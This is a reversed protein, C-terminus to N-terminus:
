LRKLLMDIVPPLAENKEAKARKRAEELVARVKPKLSSDFASMEVGLAGLNVMEETTLDWGQRILFFIASPQLADIHWERVMTAEGGGEITVKIKLGREKETEIAGIITGKGLRGLDITAEKLGDKRNARNVFALRVAAARALCEAHRDLPARFEELTLDHLANRLVLEGKAFDYSKLVLKVTEEAESSIKKELKDKDIKATAEVWEKARKTEQLEFELRRILPHISFKDMAIEWLKKDPAGELGLQGIAKELLALADDFKKQDRLTRVQDSMGGFYRTFEQGIKDGMEQLTPAFVGDSHVAHFAMFSIIAQRYDGQEVSQNVTARMRDFAPKLKDIEVKWAGLSDLEKQVATDATKTGQFERRIAELDRRLQDYDSMNLTRGFKATFAAIRAKVADLAMRAAIDRRAQKLEAIRQEVMGTLVTGPSEQIVKEYLSIVNDVAGPDDRSMVVEAKGADELNKEALKELYKSDLPQPGPQDPPQPTVVPHGNDEPPKSKNSLVFKWIAFGGAGMMILIAAVISLVLGKRAPRQLAATSLAIPAGYKSTGSGVLESSIKGLEDLLATASQPRDDPNKSMMCEILKVLNDPVSPTLSKLPPPPEKMKKLIIERITTGAYPTTGALMRYASAGLAYIDARHDVQKGLAQEPAIFHPTGFITGERSEAPQETVSRALGLDGIKVIGDEGIFLNDPKIDRHVIKKREAYELGRAAHILIPVATRPSLFKERALIDQVSGNPVYEMSFYFTDGDRDIDYVQVINPHNLQAAARAEQIFLQIFSRDKVLEQTLLKLAVIRRLSLQEAKYVTGMGGRGVREIIRYGKIMQGVLADKKGDVEDALFSIITEGIRICDGIRLTQEQIPRGNLATGNRSNLDIVFFEAGRRELKAHQRSALPDSICLTATPERGILISQTGPFALIKGKEFGKEVLLRPM